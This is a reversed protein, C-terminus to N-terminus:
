TQWRAASGRVDDASWALVVRPRLEYFPMGPDSPDLRWEYKAAYAVVVADPLEEAGCRSAAGEVIVVERPNDPHALAHANTELNRATVSRPSTAFFLSGFLWVAWM